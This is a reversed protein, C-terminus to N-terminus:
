KKSHRKCFLGNGFVKSTCPLGSLKVAKCICVVEQKKNAKNQIVTMKPVIENNTMQNQHLATYEHLSLLITKSRQQQIAAYRKRIWVGTEQVSSTTTAMM